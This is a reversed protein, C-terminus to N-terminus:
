RVSPRSGAMPPRIPTMTSRPPGYRSRTRRTPAATSNPPAGPSTIPSTIWPWPQIVTSASTKTAPTDAAIDVSPSM